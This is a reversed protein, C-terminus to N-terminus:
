PMGSSVANLFAMAFAKLCGSSIVLLWGEPGSLKTLLSLFVPIGKVIVKKIAKSVVMSKTYVMKEKNSGGQWKFARSDSAFPTFGTLM